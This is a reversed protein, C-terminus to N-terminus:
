KFWRRFLLEETRKAICAASMVTVLWMTIMLYVLLKLETSSVKQVIAHAELLEPKYGAFYSICFLSGVLFVLLLKDPMSEFTPYKKNIAQIYKRM